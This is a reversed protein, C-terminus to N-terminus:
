LQVKLLIRFVIAVSFEMRGNMEQGAGMKRILFLRRSTLKAELVFIGVRPPFKVWVMEGGGYMGPSALLAIQMEQM